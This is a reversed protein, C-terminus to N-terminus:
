KLVVAESNKDYHIVYSSGSKKEIKVNTLLLVNGKSAIPFSTNKVVEVTIPTDKSDRVKCFGYSRIFPSVVLVRVCVITKNASISSFDTLEQDFNATKFNFVGYCWKTTHQTAGNTSAFPRSISPLNINESRWGWCNFCQNKKSSFSNCFSTPLHLALGNQVLNQQLAHFNQSNKKDSPEVVVLLGNPTLNQAIALVLRSKEEISADAFEALFNSIFIFDFPAGKINTKIIEQPIHVFNNISNVEYESLVQERIEEFKSLMDKSSEVCTFSIKDISFAEGVQSYGQQLFKYFRAVALPITGVGTGIDLINTSLPLLGKELADLLILQIKLYNQPLYWLVYVSSRIDDYFIVEQGEFITNMQNAAKQLLKRKKLQLPALNASWIDGLFDTNGNIPIKYNPAISRLIQDLDSPFTAIGQPAIAKRVYDIVIKQKDMFTM